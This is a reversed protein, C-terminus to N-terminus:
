RFSENQLEHIYLNSNYNLEFHEGRLFHQSLEPRVNRYFIKEKSYIQTIENIQRVADFKVPRFIVRKAYPGNIKTSFYLCLKPALPILCYGDLRYGLLNATIADLLGDGYIFEGEMAQLFIFFGLSKLNKLLSTFISYYQSITATGIREDDSLGLLRPNKAYRRKFAPSRVMLSILLTVIEKEFDQTFHTLVEGSRINERVWKPSKEDARDFNRLSDASSELIYDLIKPISNDAADFLGEFSHTWPSNGFNIHHGGRSYGLKRNYYKKATINGKYDLLNVEDDANAWYKQLGVPWWHDDSKNRVWSKM